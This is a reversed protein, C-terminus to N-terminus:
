RVEGVQSGIGQRIRSLGSRIRSKVTGEPQDLLLAVERYTHGGFYALEIAEREEDSLAALAERLDLSTAVLESELVPSRVSPEGDAVTEERRRRAAESRLRDIARRSAMMALYGRLSSRSPDFREPQRWLALFVDQTVEEALVGPGAVRVAVGHVYAAHRRYAEVLAEQSGAAVRGVLDFDCLPLTGDEGLPAAIESGSMAAHLM